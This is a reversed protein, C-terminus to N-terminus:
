NLLSIFYQKEDESLDYQLIWNEPSLGETDDIYEFYLESVNEM